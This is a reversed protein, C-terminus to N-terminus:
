AKTEGTKDKKIAKNPVYTPYKKWDRLQESLILAADPIEQDVWIQQWTKDLGKAVVYPSSGSTLSKQASYLAKFASDLSDKQDAKADGFALMKEAAVLTWFLPPTYTNENKLKASRNEAKKADEVIPTPPQDKSHGGPMFPTMAAIVTTAIQAFTLKAQARAAEAQAKAVEAQAKFAEAQARSAEAQAQILTESSKQKAPKPSKAKQAESPKKPM